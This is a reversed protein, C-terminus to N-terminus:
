NLLYVPFINLGRELKETTGDTSLERIKDKSLGYEQATKYTFTPCDHELQALTDMTILLVRM